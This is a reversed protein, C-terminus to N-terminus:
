PSTAQAIPTLLVRTAAAVDPQRMLSEGILFCRVGVRAIRELDAPARLGSESVLLRDSPAMPALKETTALDVRLTALDRNNIGILEAGLAVAREMESADHVEVLADMGLEAASAMLEGACDDDVAALIVLVADAGIARAEVIQYPDLLFDKRLAPLEVAARASTLFLDDGQFYPADTLVSLCTAGGSAYARALAPPDFDPRILGQSPSARKIEAILAWGGAGSVRRLDKAFGRPPANRSDAYLAGIPRERKRRAVLDRKETCIRALVSM